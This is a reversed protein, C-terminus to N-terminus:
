EAAPISSDFILQDAYEIASELLSHSVRLNSDKESDIYAIQFFPHSLADALHIRENPNYAMLLQILDLAEPSVGSFLEDDFSVDGSIVSTKATWLNRTDFPFIGTLLVYMVVGLSWVDVAECYDHGELLEPAAYYPTGMVENSTEGVQFRKAYGLDALIVYPNKEDPDKILINELRIDRHWINLQHLQFVANILQHMIVAAMRETLAGMNSIYDHLDGCKYFPMVIFHFDDDEFADVAEIVGPVHLAKTLEFERSALVPDGANKSIIKVCLDEDPINVVVRVVSTHTPPAVLQGLIYREQRRSIQSDTPQPILVMPPDPYSLHTDFEQIVRRFSSLLNNALKKFEDTPEKQMLLDFVEVAKQFMECTSIHQEILSSCRGEILSTVYERYSEMNQEIQYLERMNEKFNPHPTNEAMIQLSNLMSTVKVPYFPLMSEQTKSSGCVVLLTM